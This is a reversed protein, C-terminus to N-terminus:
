DMKTREIYEGFERKGWARPKTPDQGRKVRTGQGDVIEVMRGTANSAVSVHGNLVGIQADDRSAEVFWDTSRVAAVATATDIEFRSPQSVKAVLARVLGQWLSFQADRKGSAGDISYPGVTMRTGSAATIVSGDLMRLRLKGGNAVVLTDGVNVPDQPKLATRQGAIEVFCDGSTALIDGAHESARALGTTALILLVAGGWAGRSIVM